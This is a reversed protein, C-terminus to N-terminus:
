EQAESSISSRREDRVGGDRARRVAALTPEALGDEWLVPTMRRIRRSIESPDGDLAFSVISLCADAIGTDLSVDLEKALAEARRQTLM